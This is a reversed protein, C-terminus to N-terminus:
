KLGPLSLRVQKCRNFEIGIRRCNHFDLVCISIGFRQLSRGAVLQERSLRCDLRSTMYFAQDVM